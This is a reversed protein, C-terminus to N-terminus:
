GNKKSNFQHNSSGSSQIPPLNIGGSIQGIAAVGSRGGTDKPPSYLVLARSNKSRENSGEGDSEEPDEDFTRDAVSQQVAAFRPHTTVVAGALLM